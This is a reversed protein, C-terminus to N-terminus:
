ARGDAKAFNFFSRLDGPSSILGPRLWRHRLHLVPASALERKLSKSNKVSLDTPPKRPAKAGMWGTNERQADEQPSLNDVFNFWCCCCCGVKTSKRPPLSSNEHCAEMASMGALTQSPHRGFGASLFFVVPLLGKKSCEQNCLRSADPQTESSVPQIGCCRLTWM